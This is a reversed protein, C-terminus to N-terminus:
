FIFGVEEIFRGFVIIEFFKFKIFNEVFFVVIYFLIFDRFVVFGM